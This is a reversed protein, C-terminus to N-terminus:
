FVIIKIKGDEVKAFTSLNLGRAIRTVDELHYFVTPSKECSIEIQDDEKNWTAKSRTEEYSQHSGNNFM